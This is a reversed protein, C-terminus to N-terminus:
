RRIEGEIENNVWVNYLLINKLGGLRQTTKIKYNIELEMGNYNYIINSIVETKKFKNLSTKHDLM